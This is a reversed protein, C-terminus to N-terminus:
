LHVISGFIKAYQDAFEDKKYQKRVPTFRLTLEAIQYTFAQDNQLRDQVRNSDQSTWSLPQNAQLAELSSKPLPLNTLTKKANGPLDPAWFEIRRSQFLLDILRGLSCHLSLPLSAHSCARERENMAYQALLPFRLMINQQSLRLCTSYRPFLPSDNLTRVISRCSPLFSFKSKELHNIWLQFISFFNHQHQTPLIELVVHSLNAM